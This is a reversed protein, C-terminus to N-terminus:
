LGSGHQLGGSHCPDQPRPSLCVLGFDASLALATHPSQRNERLVTKAIPGRTRRIDEETIVAETGKSWPIGFAYGSQAQDVRNLDVTALPLCHTAIDTVESTAEGMDSVGSATTVIIGANVMRDIDGPLCVTDNTTAMAAASRGLLWLASALPALLHWHLRPTQRVPTPSTDRQTPIAAHLRVTM